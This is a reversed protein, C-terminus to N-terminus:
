LDADGPESIELHGSASLSDVLEERNDLRADAVLCIGGAGRAPQRETGRGGAASGQRAFGAPGDVWCRLAGAGRLREPAAGAMRRLAEPDAPAGDRNVLGCTGS